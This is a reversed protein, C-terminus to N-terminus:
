IAKYVSIRKNLYSVAVFYSCDINFTVYSPKNNTNIIRVINGTASSFFVFGESSTIVVNSRDPYSAFLQRQNSNGILIETIVSSTQVSETVPNYQVMYSRIRGDSFTSFLLQGNKLMSSTQSSSLSISKVSQLSPYTYVAKTTLLYGNSFGILKESSFNKVVTGNVDIIRDNNEFSGFLLGNEKDFFYFNDFLIDTGRYKFRNGVEILNHNLDLLTVADPNWARLYNTFKLPYPKLMNNYFDLNIAGLSTHLTITGDNEPSAFFVDFNEPIEIEYALYYDTPNPFSTKFGKTKSYIAVSYFSGSKDSQKVTLKAYIKYVKAVTSNNTLALESYWNTGDLSLKLDEDPNVTYAQSLLASSIIASGYGPSLKVYITEIKTRDNELNSKVLFQRRGSLTYTELYFLIKGPGYCIVYNSLEVPAPLYLTGNSWGWEGEPPSSQSELTRNLLTAQQTQKNFIIVHTPESSCTFTKQNNGEFYCLMTAIPETLYEDAYFSM